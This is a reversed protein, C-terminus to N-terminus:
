HDQGFNHALALTMRSDFQGALADGYHLVCSGLRMPLSRPRYGELGAAPLSPLHWETRPDLLPEGLRVSVTRGVEVEVLFRGHCPRSLGADGVDADERGGKRRVHDEGCIPSGAPQVERHFVVSHDAGPEESRAPPGQASPTRDGRDATVRWSRRSRSLDLSGPGIGIPARGRPDARGGPRHNGGCLRAPLQRCELDARSGDLDHSARSRPRRGRRGGSRRGGDLGLAPSWVALAIERFIEPSPKAVDIERSVCCGDIADSLGARVIKARQTAGGNTVVGIRCGARRLAGLEALVEPNPKFHQVYEQRYADSLEAVPTTIGFHGRLEAFFVERSVKGDRDREVMWETAGTGLEFKASFGTAWQRFAGARDVLTNDLDFLVLHAM